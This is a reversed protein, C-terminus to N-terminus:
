AAHQAPERLASGSSGLSLMTRTPVPGSGVLSGAGLEVASLLAPRGGAAWLAGAHRASHLWMRPSREGECAAVRGVAAAGSPDYYVIYAVSRSDAVRGSSTVNIIYHEAGCMFLRVLTSASPLALSTPKPPRSHTHWAPCCWRPEGRSSSGHLPSTTRAADLGMRTDARRVRPAAWPQGQSATGRASWGKSRQPERNSKYVSSSATPTYIAARLLSQWAGLPLRYRLHHSSFFTVNVSVVSDGM